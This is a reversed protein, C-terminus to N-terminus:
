EGVGPLVNNKGDHYMWGWYKMGAASDPSEFNYNMIPYSKDESWEWDKGEEGWLLLRQGEESWIWKVFALVREPDSCSKPIFLGRWGVNTSIWHAGPQTTTMDIITKCRFDLGAQELKANDMDATNLMILQTCIIKRKAYARRRREPGHLIKM